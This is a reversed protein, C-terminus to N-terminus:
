RMEGRMVAEYDRGGYFVNVVEVRESTARYLIIARGEFPVMRIGPQLDERAAGGLPADAIRACRAEIREVFELATHVSQSAEAIYAAIQDLDAIASELLFVPLRKM